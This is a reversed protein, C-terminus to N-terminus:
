ELLKFYTRKQSPIGGMRKKFDLLLVNTEGKVTSTGMDIWQVKRERCFSYLGSFLFVAPSLFNFKKAHGLLFNFLIKGNILVSVASCIREGRLTVEFFHYDGPFLKISRDLLEWELTSDYGREAKCQSIFDYCDKFKDVVERFELGAKGGKKLKGREGQAIKEELATENVPLMCSIETQKLHFGKKLFRAHLGFSGSSQYEDPPNVLQLSKIKKKKLQAEVYDLFNDLALPNLQSSYQISGFPNRLPSTAKEGLLHIPFHGLIMKRDVDVIYFDKWGTPSQLLLQDQHHFIWPEFDYIFDEGPVSDTFQISNM